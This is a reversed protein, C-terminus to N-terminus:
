NSKPASPGNDFVDLVWRAFENYQQETSVTEVPSLFSAGDDEQRQTCTNEGRESVDLQTSRTRSGPECNSLYGCLTDKENDTLGISRILGRIQSPSASTSQSTAESNRHWAESEQCLGPLRCSQEIVHRSAEYQRNVPRRRNSLGASSIYQNRSNMVVPAQNSQLSSNEQRRNVGITGLNYEVCHPM